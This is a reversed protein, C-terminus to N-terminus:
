AGAGEREHGGTAGLDPTEDVPQRADARPPSGRSSSLSWGLGALLAAIVVDTNMTRYQRYLDNGFLTAMALFGVLALAVAIGAVRLLPDASHRLGFTRRLVLLLGIAALLAFPLGYEAALNPLLNHASQLEPVSADPRIRAFERQFGGPGVGLLPSGATIQAAAGVAEFRISISGSGNYTDPDWSEVRGPGQTSVLFAEYGAALGPAAIRLLPLPYPVVAALLLAITLLLPVRPRWTDVLLVVMLTAVIAASLWASKTYTFFLALVFLAIAVSGLVTAVRAWRERVFFPASAAPVAVVLMTAFIGVNFYTLRALQMRQRYLDAEGVVVWLWAFNIATAVLVGTTLALLAHLAQQGTPRLIMVIGFVAMPELVGHLTINTAEAPFLSVVSAAVALITALVLLVATRGNPTGDIHAHERRHLVAGLGLSAIVVTSPLLQIDGISLQARAVSVLPMAAILLLLGWWPRVIAVAAMSAALMAAAIAAVTGVAAPSEIPRYAGGLVVAAAAVALVVAAVRTFTRSV